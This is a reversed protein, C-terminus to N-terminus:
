RPTRCESVEDVELLAIRESVKSIATTEFPRWLIKVVNLLSTPDKDTSQTFSRACAVQLDIM